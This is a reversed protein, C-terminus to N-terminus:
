GGSCITSKIMETIHWGIFFLAGCILLYFQWANSLQYRKGYKRESEKIDKIQEPTKTGELLLYFNALLCEDMARLSYCGFFFILCWCLVALGLPIMSYTLESNTTRKLSLAIASAAVAILLYTYKNQVERRQKFVENVRDM